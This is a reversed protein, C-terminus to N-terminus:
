RHSRFSADKWETLMFSLKVLEGKTSRELGFITCYFNAFAFLSSQAVEKLPLVHMHDGNTIFDM